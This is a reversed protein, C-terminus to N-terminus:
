DKGAGFARLASAVRAIVGDWDNHEAQRFLRVTPYWPSDERDLFWRWDPVFPLMIWTPRGMAGALHAVSTDITIVLDLQALVAATDAFDAFSEGLPLIDPMAELTAKDSDLIDRQVSILSVGCDLLPRLATLPISRGLHKKLHQSGSWVIGVKPKDGAPLRTRWWPLRYPDAKIYPVGGPITEMTTRCALPLSALPCHYDFHMTEQGLEVLHDVGSMGYLLATLERTVALITTAGRAKVEAAYRCFQIVDGFGQEAHLLITMGNLDEQGTWIPPTYRETPAPLRQVAWRSEYVPLGLDFRGLLLLILAKNFLARLDNPRIALARDCAALAEDFRLLRMLGNGRNYHANVHTPMLAIARDFSAVADRPRGLDALTIGRNSWADAQDPNLTVARDLDVLSDELRDLDRLLIGRNSLADAFNPMLTLARDFHALADAFRGLARLSNGLNSHFAANTPNIAIAREITEVAVASRGTQEALVGLLHLTDAHDPQMTLAQRYGAEAEASRGAQHHAFAAALVRAFDQRMNGSKAALRRQHRNM